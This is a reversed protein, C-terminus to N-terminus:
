GRRTHEVIDTIGFSKTVLSSPLDYTLRARVHSCGVKAQRNTLGHPQHDDSGHPTISPDVELSPFHPLPPGTDRTAQHDARSIPWAIAGSSSAAFSAARYTGDLLGFLETASRPPGLVHSAEQTVLTLRNGALAERSAAGM